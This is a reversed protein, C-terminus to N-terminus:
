RRFNIQHPRVGRTVPRQAERGARRTEDRHTAEEMEVARQQELWLEWRSSEYRRGGMWGLWYVAMVLTAIGLLTCLWGVATM